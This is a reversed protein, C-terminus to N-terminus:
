HGSGKRTMYFIVAEIETSLNINNIVINDPVKLVVPTFNLIGKIGYKLLMDCVDQAAKAPVCIIGTSIRHRNIIEELKEIPYVPMSNQEGQRAPDTDFAAKIYVNQGIFRDNYHALARGINGMGILVVNHIRNMGFLENFVDLLRDIEYGAKKNGTIIGNVSLDKRVQEPSVGAENALDHSFVKGLGSEKFKMLSLRYNLLRKINSKIIM